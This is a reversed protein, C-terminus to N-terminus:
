RFLGAFWGWLRGFFSKKAPQSIATSTAVPSTTVSIDYVGGDPSMTIKYLQGVKLDKAIEGSVTFMLSNKLADSKEKGLYITIFGALCFDGHCPEIKLLYRDITTSNSENIDKVSVLTFKNQPVNTKSTNVVSVEFQYLGDVKYDYKKDYGLYLIADHKNMNSYDVKRDKDDSIIINPQPSISIRCYAEPPCYPAKYIYKVYANVFFKRATTSQNQSLDEISYKRGAVLNDKRIDPQVNSKDSTLNITFPEGEKTESYYRTKVEFTYEGTYSLIKTVFLSNQKQKNDPFEMSGNADSIYIEPVFNKASVTVTVKEGKKGEYYYYADKNVSLACSIKIGPRINMSWCDGGENNTLGQDFVTQVFNNAADPNNTDIVGYTGGSCIVAQEITTFPPTCSPTIAFVSAPIIFLTFFSILLLKNLNTM